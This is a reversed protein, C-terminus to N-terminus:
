LTRWNPIVKLTLGESISITNEGEQLWLTDYDGSVSSNLLTGDERYAIMRETDITLNDAVNFTLENSNVTLTGSAEGTIKYIPKSLMYSNDLVESADYKELGDISYMYPDCTFTVDFYGIRKVEREASDIDVYLVKYFYDKDDSFKLNGSGKLWRKGIRFREAWEYPKGYFGISVTIEIPEYTDDSTVLVGDRGAITTTTRRKQPSPISPREIVKLHYAECTEDKFEFTFM